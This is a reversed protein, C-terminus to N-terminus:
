NDTWKADDDNTYLIASAIACDDPKSEEFFTDALEGLVFTGESYPIHFTNGRLWVGKDTALSEKLV